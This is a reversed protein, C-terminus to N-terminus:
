LQAALQRTMAIVGDVVCAMSEYNLKDATDNPTHYHVYRLPATDTIMFAPYGMENFGRHDSWDVQSAVESPLSAGLCPFKSGTEFATVSQKILNRASTPGVFSIFNGVDPLQFPIAMAPWTQSGRASSYCGITELCYMGMIRDNAAKCARAYIQSGMEDLNFFPPEENAFFVLRITCPFREGKLRRAIALLGAVGSGNDNAAPCDEISDYHAGIVLLTEPTRTGALVVELNACEVESAMWTQRRVGYGMQTLASHIFQEALKYRSPVLVNRPGIDSALIEVDRRLEDALLRLEATVIPRSDRPLHLFPVTV